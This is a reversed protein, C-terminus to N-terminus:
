LESHTILRKVGTYSDRLTLTSPLVVIWPCGRPMPNPHRVMEEVFGAISIEVCDSNM